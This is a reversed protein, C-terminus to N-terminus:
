QEGGGYTENYYELNFNDYLSDWVNDEFGQFYADNIQDKEMEKAQQQIMQWSDATLDAFTYHEILWEVATQQKNNTM